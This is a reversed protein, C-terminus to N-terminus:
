FDIGIRFTFYVNGAIDKEKEILTGYGEPTVIYEYVRELYSHLSMGLGLNIGLKRTPNFRYGVTPSFLFGNGFNSFMYGVRADAYPTFKGFKFDTRGNAYFQLLSTQFSTCREFALGAGLFLLPNLQYGHTTSIGTYYFTSRFYDEGVTRMDNSWEFFGRYGQEPQRASVSLSFLGLALFIATKKM